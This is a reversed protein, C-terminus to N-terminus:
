SASAARTLKRLLPANTELRTFFQPPQFGSHAKRLAALPVPRTLREVDELEVACGKHIGDFYDFFEARELGSVASFRKWLTAPALSHVARVRARGIVSGVPLKVYVWIVTGIAVNMARRRLEVHKCGAFINEAHRTELSILINDGENV